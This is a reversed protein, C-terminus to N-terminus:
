SVKFFHQSEFGRTKPLSKLSAFSSVLPPSVPPLAPQTKKYYQVSSDQIELKTADYKMDPTHMVCVNSTYDPLFLMDQQFLKGTHKVNAFFGLCSSIEDCTMKCHKIANPLTNNYYSTHKIIPNHYGEEILPHNSKEELTYENRTHPISWVCAAAGTACKQPDELFWCHFYDHAQPGVGNQCTADFAQFIKADNSSDLTGSGTKIM